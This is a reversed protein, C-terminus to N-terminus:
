QKAIYNLVAKRAENVAQPYSRQQLLGRLIEEAQSNDPDAFFNNLVASAAAKYGMPCESVKEPLFACSNLWDPWVLLDGNNLNYCIIRCAKRARPRQKNEYHFATASNRLQLLKPLEQTALNVIRLTFDGLDAWIPNRVTPSDKIRYKKWSKTAINKDLFLRRARLWSAAGKGASPSYLIPLARLAPLVEDFEGKDVLNEFREVMIEVFMALRERRTNPNDLGDGNILHRLDKLYTEWAMDPREKKLLHQLTLPAHVKALQRVKEPNEGSIQNLGSLDFSQSAVQAEDSHDNPFLLFDDFSPTEPDM